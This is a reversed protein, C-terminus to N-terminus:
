IKQLIREMFTTDKRKYPERSNLDLVLRHGLSSITKQKWSLTVLQM